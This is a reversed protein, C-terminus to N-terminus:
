SFLTDQYIIHILLDFKIEISYLKSLARSALLFGLKELVQAPVKVEIKKDTVLTGSQGYLDADYLELLGNVDHSLLLVTQRYCSSPHAFLSTKLIM